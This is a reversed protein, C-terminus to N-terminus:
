RHDCLRHGEGQFVLTLIRLRYRVLENRCVLKWALFSYGPSTPVAEWIMSILPPEFSTVRASARVNMKFRGFLCCLACHSPAMRHRKGAASVALAASMLCAVDCISSQTRRDAFAVSALPCRLPVVGSTDQYTCLNLLERLWHRERLM